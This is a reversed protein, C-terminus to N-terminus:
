SGAAKFENESETPFLRLSIWLNLSLLSTTGCTIFYGWKCLFAAYISSVRVKSFFYESIYLYSFRFILLVKKRKKKKCFTLEQSQHMIFYHMILVSDDTDSFTPAAASLALQSLRADGSTM